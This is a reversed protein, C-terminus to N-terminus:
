NSVVVEKEKKLELIELELKEIRLELISIRKELMIKEDQVQSDDAYPHKDRNALVKKANARATDHWINSNDTLLISISESVRKTFNPHAIILQLIKSKSSSQHYASYGRPKYKFSDNLVANILVLQAQENLNARTALNAYIKEAYCDIYSVATIEDFITVDPNLVRYGVVTKNDEHLILQFNGSPDTRITEYVLGKRSKGCKQIKKHKSHGRDDSVKVGEENIVVSTGRKFIGFLSKGDEKKVDKSGAFCTGVVSVLCIILMFKKM